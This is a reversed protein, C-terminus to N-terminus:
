RNTRGRSAQGAAFVAGVGLQTLIRDEARHMRRYSADTRDDHGSLHLMGHLAYLLLEHRIDHGLERARRRAEPVCLVVEGSVVRGRGDHDLEFTLVDTPGPINMFREHLDSMRADDVLAISLEAPADPVFSAARQLMRRLFPAYAKGVAATLTLDIGPAARAPRSRATRVVTKRSSSATM